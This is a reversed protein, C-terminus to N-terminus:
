KISFEVDFLYNRAISTQIQNNVYEFEFTVPSMFASSSFSSYSKDYISVQYLSLSKKSKFPICFSDNGLSLLSFKTNNFRKPYIHCSTIFSSSSSSNIINGSNDKILVKINLENLDNLDYEQNFFLETYKINVNLDVSLSGNYFNNVLNKGDRYYSDSIYSIGSNYTGTFKYDDLLSKDFTIDGIDVKIESSPYASGLNWSSFGITFCSLFALFSLEGGGLVNVNVKKNLNTKIRKKM